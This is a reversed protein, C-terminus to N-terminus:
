THILTLKYATKFSTLVTPTHNIRYLPHHRCYAYGFNLTATNILQNFDDIDLGQEAGDTAQLVDIKGKKLMKM